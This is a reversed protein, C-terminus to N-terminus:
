LRHYCKRQSGHVQQGARHPTETMSAAAFVTLEVKEAPRESCGALLCLTMCLTLILALPRKTKM